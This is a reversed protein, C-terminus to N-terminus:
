RKSLHGLTEEFAMKVKRLGTSLVEGRSYLLYKKVNWYCLIDKAKYDLIIRGGEM